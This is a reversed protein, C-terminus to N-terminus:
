VLNPLTFDVFTNLNSWQVLAIKATQLVKKMTQGFLKRLSHRSFTRSVRLDRINYWNVENALYVFVYSCGFQSILILLYLTM